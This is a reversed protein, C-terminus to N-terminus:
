LMVMYQLRCVHTCVFECLLFPVAEGRAPRQLNNNREGFSRLGYDIIFQSVSGVGEIGLLYNMSVM